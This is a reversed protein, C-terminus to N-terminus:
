NSTLLVGLIARAYEVYRFLHMRGTYMFPSLDISLPLALSLLMQQFTDHVVAIMTLFM